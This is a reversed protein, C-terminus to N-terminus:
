GQPWKYLMRPFFSDSMGEIRFDLREFSVIFDEVTGYQKLKTLPSLHHTDIDFCEYLEAIFQTWAV